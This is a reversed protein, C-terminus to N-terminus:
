PQCFIGFVSTYGHLYTNGGIPGIEGNCFFGGLPIEGLYQRFLDSDFNPEEYLSEGRGLCSFMLGGLAKTEWHEQRYQKLLIELDEASTHADRLHFQIRQGPRLRDGVAIAGTRPDVGLLNRVLFDGPKLELQFPNCAIGMFLSNQVLQRDAPDLSQVIDQLAELPTMEKDDEGVQVQTLVNRKAETVRLVSGIPRCGQAVITKLCIKGRLAIGITGEGCYRDQFFLGGERQQPRGSALGGVKVAGPYAFDLGQLLEDSRVSYPDVMLIFYVQEEPSAPAALGLCDMWAQPSSDPDPLDEDQVWFPEITVEPLRALSLSIAAAEEVEQVGGLADRGIIGGGGCGLLYPIEIKQRLLPMVRSYESAFASSVFLLGLDPDGQLDQGARDIVESLAAELSPHTSLANSWQIGQNM